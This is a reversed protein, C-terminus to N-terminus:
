DDFLSARGNNIDDARASFRDSGAEHLFLPWMDGRAAPVEAWLIALARGKRLGTTM